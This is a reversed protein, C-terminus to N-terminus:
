EVYIEAFLEEVRQVLYEKNELIKLTQVAEDEACAEIIKTFTSTLHDKYANLEM